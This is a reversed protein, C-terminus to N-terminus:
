CNFSCKRVSDKSAKGPDIIGAKALDTYTETQGDFGLSQDSSELLKGIVISGEVANEAIQRTPAEM